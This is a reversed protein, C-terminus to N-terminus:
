IPQLASSAASFGILVINARRLAYKIYGSVRVKGNPSAGIHFPKEPIKCLM